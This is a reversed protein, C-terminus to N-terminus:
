VEMEIKGNRRKREAGERKMQDIKRNLEHQGYDMQNIKRQITVGFLKAFISRKIGTLPFLLGVFLTTALFLATIPLFSFLLVFGIVSLNLGYLIICTARHGFGLKLIVHHIHDSGPEFPSRGEKIRIAYVRLTDYLPISLVAMAFVPMSAHLPATVDAVGIRIAEIAIVSIIFGTVLSGTDGMFIKAPGFNYFLFGIHAGGLALCLMGHAIYGASFFWVAFAGSIIVAVGGALGDVGDILNYSNTLVIIVFGTFLAATWYPIEGIGFLGGFSHLLVGGMLIIGTATVVEILLKKKASIGLLDDKLGTFLLIVMIGAFIPFWSLSASFGSFSISVFFGLFIALGGLTPTPGKHVKREDDSSDLLKKEKVLKIIVPVSVAVLFIAGVFVGLGIVWNM